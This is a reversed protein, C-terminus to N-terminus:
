KEPSESASDAIRGSGARVIRGLAFGIAAAVGLGVVTREQLSRQARRMLDEVDHEKLAKSVRDLLGAGKEVVPRLTEDHKDGLKRAADHLAEAVSGLEDGAVDKQRELLGRGRRRAADVLEDAKEPVPSEADGGPTEPNDYKM